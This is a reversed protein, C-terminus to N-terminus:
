DDLLLAEISLVTSGDAEHHEGSLVIDAVFGKPLTFEADSLKRRFAALRDEDPPASLRLHLRSGEFTASYWARERRELLVTGPLMALLSETLACKRGRQMLM